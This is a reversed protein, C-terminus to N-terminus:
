SSSRLQSQWGSPMSSMSSPAVLEKPTAGILSGKTQQLTRKVPLDDCSVVCSLGEMLLVSCPLLLLPQLFLGLPWTPGPCTYTSRHTPM